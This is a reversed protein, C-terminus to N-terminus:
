GIMQAMDAHLLVLAAIPLTSTLADIRDLVGGHGPLINGSDKAGAVRKIWSEFLDGIISLYLMLGGLIMAPLLWTWADFTAGHLVSLVIAIYIALTLAAGAVGEWTKGPSITPALKHKGFRRGTFYAASDAVWVVGMLVLVLGAGHTRLEVLAAWLPVLVLMGLPIRLVASKLQWGYALTLPVIVLWLVMSALYVWQAAHLAYVAVASLINIIVFIYKLATSFNSLKAWEWAGVVLPLLVVVTWAADPLLFLCGLFGGILLFATILRERLMISNSAPADM